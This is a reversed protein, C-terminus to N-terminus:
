VSKTETGPANAERQAKIRAMIEAVTEKVDGTEIKLDVPAEPVEPVMPPTIPSAILNIVEEHSIFRESLVQRNENLDQLIPPENGFHEFIIDHQAKEVNIDGESTKVRRFVTGRVGKKFVLKYM